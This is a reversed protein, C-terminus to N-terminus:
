TLERVLQKFQRGRDEFDRFMDFSSCAPSFLVSAGPRAHQRALEVAERLSGAPLVNVIGDFADAIKQRSEGIAVICAVKERVIDAIVSYDNGKDRGGAILVMGAPVSQLAQLLANVNTAKSDNIWDIGCANGAFEQRHEVGGFAALVLRMTEPAVGAAFAAAVSSLVNYLNHDGRFGPKMIEDVRMLRETSGSTRIVIEGKAVSVYDGHASDLTEARLGVRVVRFSWPEQRDFHARLIPDDHNYILTDGSGQQAHIRFKAAAYAEISGDYRDMHDPTVNTLVAINPRFSFCGELQYSSLELVAIDAAAMDLVKSSFPVGINGLSFARFRQREGEAECIRHILTATTTKGDTGTIGIVRAPCFWSALEIESVVPIARAHMECIVPVRQPIGPSVICLTAEFVRESHGGEEFPVGFQRLTKAAEPTVAGFESVFPQAEARALLGAAAVGSKGAGIVAAVKGKLKEPKM